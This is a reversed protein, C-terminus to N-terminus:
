PTANELEELKAELYEKTIKVTDNKVQILYMLDDYRHKILFLYAFVFGRHFSAKGFKHCKACASVGNRTDYRLHPNLKKDEIHHAQVYENSGCCECLFNARERVRKSWLKHCKAALITIPRRKRRKKKM